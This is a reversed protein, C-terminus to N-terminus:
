LLMVPTHVTPVNFPPALAVRVMAARTTLGPAWLPTAELRGYLPYSQAIALLREHFQESNIVPNETGSPSKADGLVPAALLLAEIGIVVLSYTLRWM